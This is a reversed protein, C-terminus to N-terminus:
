RSKLAYVSRACPLLRSNPRRMLWPAIGSAPTMGGYGITSSTQVSFFFADKFTGDAGQICGDQLLYLGAFGLNGLRAILTGQSFVLYVVISAPVLWIRFTREDDIPGPPALIMDWTVIAAGLVSLLTVRWLSSEIAAGIRGREVLM